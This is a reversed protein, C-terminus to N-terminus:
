LGCLIACISTEKSISLCAHTSRRCTFNSAHKLKKSQRSRIIFIIIIILHRQIIITQQRKRCQVQLSFHIDPHHQFQLMNKSGCYECEVGHVSARLVHGATWRRRPHHRRRGAAGSLARCRIKLLLMMGAAAALLGCCVSSATSYSRHFNISSLECHARVNAYGINEARHVTVVPISRRHLSTYLGLWKLARLLEM